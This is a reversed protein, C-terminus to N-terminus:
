TCKRSTHGHGGSAAVSLHTQPSLAREQVRLDRSTVQVVFVNHERREVAPQHGPQSHTYSQTINKINGAFARGACPPSHTRLRCETGHHTRSVPCAVAVPCSAGPLGRADSGWRLRVPLLAPGESSHLSGRASVPLSLASLRANLCLRTVLESRGEM